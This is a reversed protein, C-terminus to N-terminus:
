EIVDYGLQELCYQVTGLNQSMFFEVLENSSMEITHQKYAGFLTEKYFYIDVYVEEEDDNYIIEIDDIVVKTRDSVVITCTIMVMVGEEYLVYSISYDDDFAVMEANGYIREGFDYYDTDEYAPEGGLEVTADVVFNLFEVRRNAQTQRDVLIGIGFAVAGALFLLLFVITHLRMVTMKKM